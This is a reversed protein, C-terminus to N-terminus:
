LEIEEEYHSGFSTIIDGAEWSGIRRKAAKYAERRHRLRDVDRGTGQKQPSQSEFATDALSLQTERRFQSDPTSDSAEEPTALDSLLFGGAKRDDDESTRSPSSTESQSITGPQTREPLEASDNRKHAPLAIDAKVELVQGELSQRLDRLDQKRLGVSERELTENSAFGRRRKSGRRDTHHIGINSFTNPSIHNKNAQHQEQDSTNTDDSESSDRTTSVLQSDERSRKLNTQKVRKQMEQDHIFIDSSCLHGFLNEISMEQQWTEEDVTCPYVDKPKFVGM